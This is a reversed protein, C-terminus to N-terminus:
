VGSILLVAQRRSANAAAQALTHHAIPQVLQQSHWHMAFEDEQLLGRM